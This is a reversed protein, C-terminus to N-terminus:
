CSGSLGCKDVHDTITVGIDNIRKLIELTGQECAEHVYNYGNPKKQNVNFDFETVLLAVVDGHNGKIAASMPTDGYIDEKNVDAGMKCLLRVIEVKGQRCVEHLLTSGNRDVAFVDPVSSM